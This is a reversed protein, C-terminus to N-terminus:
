RLTSFRDGLGGVVLTAFGFVLSVFFRVISVFDFDALFFRLFPPSAM